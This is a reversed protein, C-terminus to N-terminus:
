QYWQFPDVKYFKRLEGYLLPHTEKLEIPKEFFTETAVAFFEAPSTAGYEDLVVNEGQEAREQLLSYERSLVEAWSKYQSDNGLVPLGDSIDNEEDLKHAFEHLVVNHGDRDQSAERMVDGWSLVVPGRHWSEGLRVDDELTEVLGDKRVGAAVYTDPYVLITKFGPFYNTDRNLLLVCAQAAITVRIEDTIILGGCGEFRKQGLFVNTRQHLEVQLERPLARYLPVNKNLVHIWDDPFPAAYIARRRASRLHRLLIWAIFIGLFLGSFLLIPM